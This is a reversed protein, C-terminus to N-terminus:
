PRAGYVLKHPKPKAHPESLPVIQLCVIAYLNSVRATVPGASPTSSTAIAATDQKGPDWEPFSSATSQGVRAKLIPNYNDRHEYIDKKVRVQRLQIGGIVWNQELLPHMCSTNDNGYAAGLLPGRVFNWLEQGEGVDYWTYMFPGMSYEDTMPARCVKDIMAENQEFWLRLNINQFIILMHVALFALYKWMQSYMQFKGYDLAARHAGKIPFTVPHREEGSCQPVIADLVAKIDHTDNPNYRCCEGKSSIRHVLAQTDGREKRFRMTRPTAVPM